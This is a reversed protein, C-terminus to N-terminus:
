RVILKCSLYKSDSHVKVQCLGNPLNLSIEEQNSTGTISKSFVKRGAVDVVLIDMLEGEEGAVSITSVQGSESPNPYVNFATQTESPEDFAL